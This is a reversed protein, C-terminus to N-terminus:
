SNRPACSCIRFSSKTLLNRRLFSPLLSQISREWLQCVEFFSLGERTKSGTPSCGTTLTAFAISLFPLLLRSAKPFATEEKSLFSWLPATIGIYRALTAKKMLIPINVIAKVHIENEVKAIYDEARRNRKNRKLWYAVESVNWVRIVRSIRTPKPFDACRIYELFQERELCFVYCLASARLWGCHYQSRYEPVYCDASKGFDFSSEAM